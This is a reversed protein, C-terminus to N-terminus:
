AQKRVVGQLVVFYIGYAVVQGLSLCLVTPGLGWGERGAWWYCGLVLIVSSVDYVLKQRQGGLVFVARSLPSVVLQSTAWPIMAVALAGAAGWRAGFIWAFGRPGLGLIVTAPLASAALLLLATRRFFKPVYERRERNHLALRAHFADAVSQGVLGVPAQLVRFALGFQGAAEAGFRAAILPLPLSQSVANLLGSPAGVQAFIAHKRLVAKMSQWNQKRFAAKTEQWRHAVLPVCGVVRGLAEGATLGAWGGSAWAAGIPMVARGVNQAVATQGLLGFREARMHWYRLSMFVQMVVLLVASWWLAAWPVNGYGLWGAGIFVGLLAVAPITVIPGLWLTAVTLAACEDVTATGVIAQDYFLATVVSAVAVFATILSYTGWAAPGYLRSLAPGAALLLVQSAATSGALTLVHRLFAGRALSPSRLRLSM